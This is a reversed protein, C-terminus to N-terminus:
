DIDNILKNVLREKKINALAKYYCWTSMMAVLSVGAIGYFSMRLYEMQTIATSMFIWLGVSIVYCLSMIVM